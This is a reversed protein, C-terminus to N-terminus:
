SKITSIVRSAIDFINVSKQVALIIPILKELKFKVTKSAIIAKTSEIFAITCFYERKYDSQRSTTDIAASILPITSDISSIIARTEIIGSIVIQKDHILDNNFTTILVDVLVYLTNLCQLLCIFGHYIKTLVMKSTLINEKSVCMATLADTIETIETM